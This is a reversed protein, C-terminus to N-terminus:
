RQTLWGWAFGGDGEALRGEATIGLRGQPGTFERERRQPATPSSPSGTAPGTRSSEVQASVPGPRM